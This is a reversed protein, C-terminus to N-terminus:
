YDLLRSRAEVLDSIQTLMIFCVKRYVPVHLDGKSVGIALNKWNTKWIEDKLIESAPNETFRLRYM